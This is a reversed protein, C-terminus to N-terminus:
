LNVKLIEKAENLEKPDSFTTEGLIKSFIVRITRMIINLDYFLSKNRAYVVDLAVKIPMINELYYLESNDHMINNELHTYNYLSGPSSLGPPVLLSEKLIISYHNEVIDIDEPRPGVIVMQGLLVNFLQPLEDIKTSRIFKGFRFIRADNTSTIKSGVEAKRMSRFKLLYFPKGLYGARKGRYFIPGRDSLFIGIAAFVFLLSLVCIAIFALLRNIFSQM